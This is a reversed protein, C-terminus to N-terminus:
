SDLGGCVVLWSIYCYNDLGVCVVEANICLLYSFM